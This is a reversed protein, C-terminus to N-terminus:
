GGFLKDLLKSKLKEKLQDEIDEPEAPPQEPEAEPTIIEADIAPDPESASKEAAEKAAKDDDPWDAESEPEPESQPRKLGLKEALKENLKERATKKFEDGSIKKGGLYKESLKKELERKLLISFDPRIKPAALTGSIRLPITEGKLDEVGKGGQGEFSEVVAVVLKLDLEDTNLDVKGGGSVRLGPAKLNIDDTKLIGGDIKLHSSFNSFATKDGVDTGMDLEKGKVEKYLGAADILVKQLNAGRIAGDNLDIDLNGNLNAIMDDASLGSSSLKSSVNGFGEVRDTMQMAQLFPGLNLSTLKSDIEVKPTSGSIDYVLDNTTEGGYIRAKLPAVQIRDAGTDIKVVVDNSLLDQMRLEGVSVEGKVDLGKLSAFPLAIAAAPGAQEAVAQNDESLYNDVNLQDLNLNFRYAPKAFDKLSFQGKLNSDDLKVKLNELAIANLGGSFNSELALSQMAAAPMEELADLGLKNLLTKPNFQNSKLHGTANIESMIHTAKVEADIHAEGFDVSLKPADLTEAGLDVSLQESSLALPVGQFESRVSQKALALTNANVDFQIENAEGQIPFLEYQGSYKLTAVGAKASNLNYTVSQADIDASVQDMSLEGGFTDVALAGSNVDFNLTNLKIDAAGMNSSAKALVNSALLKGSDVGFSLSVIDADAKIDAMGLEGHLSDLKIQDLAESVWLAGNLKIAAIDPLASGKVKGALDFVVPEGPKITGTSLDFDSLHYVQGAQRDDWDIEGASIDVGQILLSGLVIGAAEEPKAPTESDTSESLDGWNSEGQANMSLNLTPAQLKIKGIELQKSILPLLKVQIDAQEAELMTEPMFGERNSLSFDNLTVGVWPYFRWSLDGAIILKRGTASEVQQSIQPKFDNPDVKYVLFFAGGVAVVVLFLLLWLLWKILSM